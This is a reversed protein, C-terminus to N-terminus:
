AKTPLTLHTYSVPVWSIASGVRQNLFGHLVALPVRGPAQISDGYTILAIDGEHWLNRHAAPPSQEGSLQIAELLRTVWAARQSEDLVDAYLARLHEGLRHSLTM